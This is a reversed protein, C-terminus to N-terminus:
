DELNFYDVEKTIRTGDDATYVVKYEGHLVTSASLYDYHWNGTSDEDMGQADVVASNQPNYISIKMSDAPSVATGAANTIVISCVVTEEVQFSSM